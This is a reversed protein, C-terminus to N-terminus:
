RRGRRPRDRCPWAPRIPSHPSARSRSRRRRPSSSSVDAAKSVSPTTSCRAKGSDFPCRRRWRARPHGLQSSSTASARARPSRPLSNNHRSGAPRSRCSPASLNHRAGHTLCLRAGGRPSKPIWNAARQRLSSTCGAIHHRELVFNRTWDDSIVCHLTQMGNTPYCHEM